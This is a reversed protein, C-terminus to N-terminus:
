LLGCLSFLHACVQCVLSLELLGLPPRARIMEIFTWGFLPLLILISSCVLYSKISKYNQIILSSHLILQILLNLILVITNSLSCELNYNDLQSENDVQSFLSYMSLIIVAVMFSYMLLLCMRLYRPRRRKLIANNEPVIAINDFQVIVDM